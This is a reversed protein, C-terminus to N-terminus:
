EKTPNEVKGAFLVTKKKNNVIFVLFPRDLVFELEAPFFSYLTISIGTAGSAEIGVEDVEM